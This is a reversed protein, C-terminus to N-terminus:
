EMEGEKLYENRDFTCTNDFERKYTKSLLTKGSHRHYFYTIKNEDLCKQKYKCQECTVSITDQIMKALKDFENNPIFM